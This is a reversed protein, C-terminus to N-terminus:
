PAMACDLEITTLTSDNGFLARLMLLSALGTLLPVALNIRTHEAVDPNIMLWVYFAAWGLLIPRTLRSTGTQPYEAAFLVTPIALLLLDYDFYFPMLLPTATIAAAILRDRALGGSRRLKLTITFLAAGISLQGLTALLTVMRSAEGAGPGQLLLRWFAKFTVHRQWIYPSNTQVFHLNEPLRHLFSSLTGPLLLITASGLLAGTIAYGIAARWGLDMVLVIGVALGLQPKYFLLGGLLGAALAEERRWLTVVGCLLLLSTCTNQGHTIALMFPTSLAMLVPILAWSRWDRRDSLMASLLWCAAAFCILNLVTWLRLAAPFSLKSFPLFVLAYFPPNWWPAYEHTIKVQGRRALDHQFELVAPMDYLEASRGERVFDGATYFALFDLGMPSGSHVQSRPQLLYAGYVTAIFLAVGGAGLWLKKRM